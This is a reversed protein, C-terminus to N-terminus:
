FQYVVEATGSTLSISKVYELQTGAPITGAAVADASAPTKPFKYVLATFPVATLARIALADTIVQPNGVVLERAGQVIIQNNM